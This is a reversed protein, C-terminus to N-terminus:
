RQKVGVAGLVYVPGDPGPSDKWGAKWGRAPAVGPPVLDLGHLFSAMDAATHNHTEAVYAARM